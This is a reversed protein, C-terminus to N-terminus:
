FFYFLTRWPLFDPPHASATALKKKPKSCATQLVCAFGFGPRFTKVSVQLLLPQEAVHCAEELSGHRFHSDSTLSPTCIAPCRRTLLGTGSPRKSGHGAEGAWKKLKASWFLVGRPLFYIRDNLGRTSSHLGAGSRRAIHTNYTPLAQHNRRDVSDCIM